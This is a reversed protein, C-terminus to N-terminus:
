GLARLASGGDSHWGAGNRPQGGAAVRRYVTALSFTVTVVSSDSARLGGRWKGLSRGWSSPCTALATLRREFFQVGFSVVINKDVRLLYRGVGDIVDCGVGPAVRACTDFIEVVERDLVPAIAEEAGVACYRLLSLNRVPM